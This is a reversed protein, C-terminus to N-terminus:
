LLPVFHVMLQPSRVCPPWNGMQPCPFEADIGVPKQIVSAAVVSKFCQDYSESVVLNLVQLHLAM